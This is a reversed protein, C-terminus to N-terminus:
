PKKPSPDELAAAKAQDTMSWGWKARFQEEDSPLGAQEPGGNSDAPASKQSPVIDIAIARGNGDSDPLSETVSIQKGQFRMQNGPQIPDVKAPTEPQPSTVPIGSSFATENNYAGPRPTSPPTDEAFPLPKAPFSTQRPLTSKELPSSSDPTPQARFLFLACAVLAM